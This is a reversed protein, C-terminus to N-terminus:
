QRDRDAFVPALLNDVPVYDDTLTVYEGAQLYRQWQGENVFREDLPPATMLADLSTHTAVVVVTQRRYQGLTGVSPGVYVHEFTQSLTHVYSRLFRGAQGDIINVLYVGDETLHDAILQNFEHTTLHYPVSFDNFADGVILDYRQSDPLRNIFQRGDENHSIIRSSEPLGLHSYVIETVAPDIEIVEVHSGLHVMEVFRPFTYGGGGIFLATVPQWDPFLQAMVLAYVKEYEYRLTTPNDLDVYSHILRDLSLIRVSDDQEDVRVKLCYYNSERLCESELVGQQWAVGSSILTVTLLAVALRRRSSWILSVGILLLLAAVLWIILRTGLASILLFGTTFSGAISGVTGAASIKGVVDGTQTLDNLTLKVVLPSITGLITAPLLFVTMFIIVMRLVIPLNLALLDPALQLLGLIGASGLASLIFLWGLLQRSAFRDALKGGLYSGLSIGALIVGIISTWTYLSVGVIPAMLRGAVLEIVLICFNALFVIGIAVLPHLKDAAPPETTSPSNM